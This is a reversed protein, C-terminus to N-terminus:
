TLSDSRQNQLGIAEVHCVRPCGVLCWSLVLVVGSSVVCGFRCHHQQRTGGITQRQFMIGYYSRRHYMLFHSHISCADLNNQPHRVPWQKTSPTPMWGVVSSPMLWAAQKVAHRAHNIGHLFQVPFNEVVVFCPSAVRHDRTTAESTAKRGM